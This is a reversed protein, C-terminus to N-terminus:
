NDVLVAKSTIYKALYAFVVWVTSLGDFEQKINAKPEKIFRSWQSFDMELADQSWKKWFISSHEQSQLHLESIGVSWNIIITEM